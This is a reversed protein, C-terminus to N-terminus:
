RVSIAVFSSLTLLSNHLHFPTAKIVGVCLVKYRNM